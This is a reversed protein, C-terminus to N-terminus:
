FLCHSLHLVLKFINLCNKFCIKTDVNSSLRGALFIIRLNITLKYREEDEKIELIDEVLGTVNGISVNDGGVRVDESTIGASDLINFLELLGDQDDSINMVRSMCLLLTVKIFTESVIIFKNFKRCM